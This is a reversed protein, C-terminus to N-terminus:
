YIIKKNLEIKIKKIENNEIKYYIQNSIKYRILKYDYLKLFHRLLTLSRKSNLSSIFSYKCPLYLDLLVDLMDYIKNITNNIKISLYTIIHYDNLNDINFCLLFKKFEEDTPLRRFLQFYM